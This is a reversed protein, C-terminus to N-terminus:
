LRERGRKEREGGRKVIREGEEEDEKEGKSKEDV